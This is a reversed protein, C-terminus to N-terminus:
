HWYLKRAELDPDLETRKLLTYTTRCLIREGKKMKRLAGLTELEVYAQPDPNTFIEVSAGQDPYEALPLRPSDIRVMDNEGMWLLTGGDTGIKYSKKPDRTLALWNAGLRLSPPREDSLLHFGERFHSVQPILSYIAIPSKMQSVAWVSVRLSSGQVKDFTTAIKLVPDNIALKIERRVRIGYSPDVASTLTVVFGDLKVEYPLGDFGAPPPWEHKTHDKWESQPAPWIKEGGFNLWNTSQPDPLKGLVDANEWFSGDTEGAFRFQMVRGVQSVIIAEVRGNSVLLANEWGHYNTRVLFGVPDPIQPKEGAACVAPLAGSALLSLAALLV